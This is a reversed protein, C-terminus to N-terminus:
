KMGLKKAVFTLMKGGLVMSLVVFMAIALYTNFKIPTHWFVFQFLDFFLAIIYASIKTPLCSWMAISKHARFEPPLPIPKNFNLSLSLIGWIVGILAVVYLKNYELGNYDYIFLKGFWRKIRKM